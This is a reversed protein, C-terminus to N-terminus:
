KAAKRAELLCQHDYGLLKEVTEESFYVMVILNKLGLVTARQIFLESQEYRDLVEVQQERTLNSFKSRYGMALPSMELGRLLLLFGSRYLSPMGTVFRDIMEVMRDDDPRKDKPIFDAVIALMVQKIVGCLDESFCRGNAEAM